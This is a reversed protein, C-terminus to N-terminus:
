TVLQLILDDSFYDGEILEFDPFGLVRRPTSRGCYSGKSHGCISPHVGIDMHTTDHSLRVPALIPFRDSGIEVFIHMMYRGATSRQLPYVGVGGSPDEDALIPPLCPMDLRLDQADNGFPM